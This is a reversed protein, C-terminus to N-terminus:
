AGGAVPQSHLRNPLYAASINKKGGELYWISVLEDFPVLGWEGGRELTGTSQNPGFGVPQLVAMRRGVRM